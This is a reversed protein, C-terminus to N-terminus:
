VGSEQTVHKGVEFVTEIIERTITHVIVVRVGTVPCEARELRDHFSNAIEELAEPETADPFLVDGPLWDGLPTLTDIRFKAM